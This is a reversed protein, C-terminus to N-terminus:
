DELLYPIPALIPLHSFDPFVTKQYQSLEKELSKREEYLDASLLFITSNLSSCFKPKAADHIQNLRELLSKIKSDNLYSQHREKLYERTPTEILNPLM